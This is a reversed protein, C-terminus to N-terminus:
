ADSKRLSLSIMSKRGRPLATAWSRPCSTTVFEPNKEAWAIVDGEILPTGVLLVRAEQGEVVTLHPAAAKWRVNFIRWASALKKPDSVDDLV